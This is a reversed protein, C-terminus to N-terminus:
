ANRSRRPRAARQVMGARGSRSGAAEALARLRRTYWNSPRKCDAARKREGGLMKPICRQDSRINHMTQPERARPGHRRAGAVPKSAAPNRPWKTRARVGVRPRKRPVIAGRMVARRGVGWPSGAILRAGTLCPLRSAVGCMAKATEWPPPPRRESVRGFCCRRTRRARLTWVWRLATYSDVGHHQRISYWQRVDQEQRAESIRRRSRGHARRASQPM